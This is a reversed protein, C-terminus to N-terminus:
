SVGEDQKRECDRKPTQQPARQEQAIVTDERPAETAFSPVAVTALLALSLIRLM